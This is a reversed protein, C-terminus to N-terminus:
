GKLNCHEIEGREGKREQELFVRASKQPRGLCELFSATVLGFDAEMLTQKGTSAAQFDLGGSCLISAHTRTTTLACLLHHCRRPRPHSLTSRQDETRAGTTEWNRWQPQFYARRTAPFVATLFSLALVGPQMPLWAGSFGRRPDPRGNQWQCTGFGLTKWPSWPLETAKRFGSCASCPLWRTALGCHALRLM